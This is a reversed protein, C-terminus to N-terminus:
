EGGEETIEFREPADPAIVHLHSRVKYSFQVAVLMTRESFFQSKIKQGNYNRLTGLNFASIPPPITFSIGFYHSGIAM